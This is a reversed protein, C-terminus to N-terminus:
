QLCNNKYKPLKVENSHFKFKLIIILWQAFDEFCSLSISKRCSLLIKIFFFKDLNGRPKPSHDKFVWFNLVLFSKLFHVLNTIRRFAKLSFQKMMSWHNYSFITVKIKWSPKILKFSFLLMCSIKMELMLREWSKM